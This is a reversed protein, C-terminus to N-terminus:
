IFAATEVELVDQKLLKVVEPLVFIHSIYAVKM